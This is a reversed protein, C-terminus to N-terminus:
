FIYTFIVTVIVTTILVQFIGGLLAYKKISSFKEISFELGVIFLLFIVGLESISTIIDTSNIVQGLIIGTLFLGIMSPIKLKNFILLVIVATVLILSITQLLYIDM